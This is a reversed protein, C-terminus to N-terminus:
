FGAEKREKAYNLFWIILFVLVLVGAGVMVFFMVNNPNDQGSGNGNADPIPVNEDVPPKEECDSDVGKLCDPDCVSDKQNICIGDKKNLPCDKPCSLVTEDEECKGNNNCLRPSIDERFVEKGAFEVTIYKEKGKKPLKVTQIIEDVEGFTGSMYFSAFVKVSSIEANSDGITKIIFQGRENGKDPIGQLLEINKLQATGSKGFNIDAKLVLEANATSFLLVALFLIITKKM